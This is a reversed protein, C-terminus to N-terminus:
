KAPDGKGALDASPIIDNHLLVERGGSGTFFDVVRRRNALPKGALTLYISRTLPYKGSAINELNPEILAGADDKIPLAFVDKQNAWRIYVVSLGGSNFQVAAAANESNEVSEFRAAAAKASDTYLWSAFMEWVGQGAVPNFFQVSRAPGGLQSWNTFRKEYIGTIQDRSLSRVGNNWLIEPVILVIAQKGIEFEHFTKEPYTAREEGSMPRLTLVLDTTEAGLAAFADASGGGAKPKVKIEEAALKASADTLLSKLPAVAQIRLPAPAPDEARAQAACCLFVSLLFRFPSPFSRV